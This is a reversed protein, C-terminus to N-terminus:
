SHEPGDVNFTSQGTGSRMVIIDAPESTPNGERHVAGKPVYVFDGPGAELVRSGDPGFEMRLSGTLVYIVSEYEGHHHWGSVTGADTRVFGSWTGETAFAEQRDMGPTSPGPRRDGPRVVVVEDDRREM